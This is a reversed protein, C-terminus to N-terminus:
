QKVAVENATTTKKQPVVIRYGWPVVYDFLVREDDLYEEVGLTCDPTLFNVLLERAEREVAAAEESDDGIQKRLTQALYFKARAVNEQPWHVKRDLNLTQRIWKRICITLVRDEHGHAQFM